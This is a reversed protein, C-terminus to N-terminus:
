LFQVSYNGTALILLLHPARFLYILQCEATFCTFSVYVLRLRCTISVYDFRVTEMDLEVHSKMNTLDISWAQAISFFLLSQMRGGM